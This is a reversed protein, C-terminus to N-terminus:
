NGKFDPARKEKLAALGEKLDNSRMSRINADQITAEDYIGRSIANLHKKMSRMVAPAGAALQEAMTHLHDGFQATEVLDHLYGLRLLEEAPIPQGLLFLRKATNLGLREVYRRMGGAYYHLGIRTAPMVLRSGTVGLRFDCALAIDTAGGYVSGNLGCVTPISLDELRNVVMGFTIGNASLSSVASLTYGSSFTRTGTGTVVLARLSETRDIQDFHAMLVALDEPDIRNHQSPRCFRITAIQGDISLWPPGDDFEGRPPPVPVEPPAVAEPAADTGSASCSSDADTSQAPLQSADTAVTGNQAPAASPEGPTGSDPQQAPVPVPVSSDSSDSSM